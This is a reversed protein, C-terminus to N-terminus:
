TEILAYTADIVPNFASSSAVTAFLQRIRDFHLQRLIPLNPVKVFLRNGSATYITQTASFLGSFPALNGFTLDVDCPIVTWRDKDLAHHLYFNKSTLDTNPLM